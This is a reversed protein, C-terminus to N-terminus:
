KNTPTAAAPAATPLAVPVAAFLLLSRQGAQEVAQGAASLPLQYSPGLSEPKTTVMGDKFCTGLARRLAVLPLPVGASLRTAIILRPRESASGAAGQATTGTTSSLSLGCSEVVEERRAGKVTRLVQEIVGRALEIADLTAGQAAGNDAGRVRKRIHAVAGEAREACDDRQRKRRPQEGEAEEDRNGNSRDSVQASVHLEGDVSGLFLRQEPDAGLAAAASQTFADLLPFSVAGTLRHSSIGNRLRSKAPNLPQAATSIREHVASDAVGAEAEGM